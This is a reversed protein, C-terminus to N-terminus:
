KKGRLIKIFEEVTFDLDDIIGKLTKKGIDKGQHTPVTIKRGDSNKFQAHSGVQHFKFFGLRNLIKVLERAKILPLKSM